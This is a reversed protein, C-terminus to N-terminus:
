ARAASLKQHPRLLVKVVNPEDRGHVDRGVDFMMGARRLRDLLVEGGDLHEKIVEDDALDNRGIRGRRDLTWGM